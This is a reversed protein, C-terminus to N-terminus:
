FLLYISGKGIGRNVAGHLSDQVPLFKFILVKRLKVVPFLDYTFNDLSDGLFDSWIVFFPIFLFSSIIVRLPGFTGLAVTVTIFGTFVFRIFFQIRLRSCPHSSPFFATHIHTQTPTFPTSYSHLIEKKQCFTLLYYRFRFDLFPLIFM